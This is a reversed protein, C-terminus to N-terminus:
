LVTYACDKAIGVIDVLFTCCTDDFIWQIEENQDTLGFQWTCLLCLCTSYFFIPLKLFMTTVRTASVLSVAHSLWLPLGAIWLRCIQVANVGSCRCTHLQGLGRRLRFFHKMTYGGVIYLWLMREIVHLDHVM